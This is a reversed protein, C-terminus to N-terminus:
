PQEVRGKELDSDKELEAAIDALISAYGTNPVGYQIFTWVKRKEPIKFDGRLRWAIRAVWAGGKSESLIKDLLFRLALNYERFPGVEDTTDGPPYDGAFGIVDPAILDLVLQMELLNSIEQLAGRRAEFVPIPYDFIDKIHPESPTRSIEIVGERVHMSLLREPGLISKIAEAVTSARTHIDALETLLGSDVYEVGFCLNYSQGFQLLANIRPTQLATFEPVLASLNPDGCRAHAVKPAASILLLCILWFGTPKRM